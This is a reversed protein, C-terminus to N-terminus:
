VEKRIKKFYGLINIIKCRSTILFLISPVSCTSQLPLADSKYEPPARKSVGGSCEMRLNQTIKRLERM